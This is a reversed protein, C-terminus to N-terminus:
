MVQTDHPFAGNGDEAKHWQKHYWIDFATDLEFPCGQPCEYDRLARATAIADRAHQRLIPVVPFNGVNRAVAAMDRLNRARLLYNEPGYHFEVNSVRRRILRYPYEPANDRYSKLDDRSENHGSETIPYQGLDEWGDGYGANMQLIIFTTTKTAFRPTM